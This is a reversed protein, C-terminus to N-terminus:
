RNITHFLILLKINLSTMIILLFFVYIFTCRIRDSLEKFCTRNIALLCKSFFTSHLKFFFFFLSFCCHSPMKWRDFWCLHFFFSIIWSPASPLLYGILFGKRLIWFGQGLLEQEPVGRLSANLWLFTKHLM